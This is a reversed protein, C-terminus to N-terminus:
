KSLVSPKLLNEEAPSQKKADGDKKSPAKDKIGYVTRVKTRSKELHAELGLTKEMDDLSRTNLRQYRRGLKVGREPFRYQLIGLQANYEQTLKELERHEAQVLKVIEIQKEPQSESSKQKLLSEISDNKAKIKAGLSAVVKEVDSLEKFAKQDSTPAVEAAGEKGKTKEGSEENAFTPLVFLLLIFFKITM